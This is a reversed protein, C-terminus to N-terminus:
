WWLLMSRVTSVFLDMAHVSHVKSAGNYSSPTSVFAVPLARETLMIWALYKLGVKKYLNFSVIWTSIELSGNRLIRVPRLIIMLAEQAAILIRRPDLVLCWKSGRV